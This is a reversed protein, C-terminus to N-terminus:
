RSGATFTDREPREARVAAAFPVYAPKESGDARLLGWHREAMGHYNSTDFRSDDAMMRYFIGRVGAAKLEPIRARLDAFVRAQRAEYGPSPYSSAAFDVIFSPKAFTNQLFRAGDILTDIAHDYEDPERVSSRLLQTGVFDAAAVARDFRGWYERGWNGFAIVVRVNGRRHLIAAVDALEADFPEYSEIGGKNFENELVVYTERDGMTREIVQSLEDSMRHWSQRDKRVHHRSDTVGREVARPSIDDGWYWWGIVPTVHRDRALRLSAETDRWGSKQTWPGVWVTGFAFDLGKARARDIAALDIGFQMNSRPASGAPASALVLGAILGSVTLKKM